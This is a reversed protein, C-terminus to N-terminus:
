QQKKKSTKRSTKSRSQWWYLLAAGGLVWFLTSSFGAITSFKEKLRASTVIGETEEYLQALEEQTLKSVLKATLEDSFKVDDASEAAFAKYAFYAAASVAAIVTASIVIMATTSIVVGVKGTLSQLRAYLNVYGKPYSKEVGTTLINNQLAQNRILLRNQLNQLEQQDEATMYKACFACLLNNEYIHMNDKIIANIYDQGDGYVPAKVTQYGGTVWFGLTDQYWTRTNGVFFWGSLIHTRTDNAVDSSAAVFRNLDASGTYYADSTFQIGAITKNFQLQPIM